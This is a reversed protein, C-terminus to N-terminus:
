EVVLNGQMGLTRHQGVSCYYEFSGAQDAVFEVAATDGTQVQKTAANFEDIVWDHFGDSSTFEIRVRDGKKVKLEPNEKGDMLFRYNEGTITFTTVEAEMTDVNEELDRSALPQDEPVAAEESQKCASLSLLVLTLLLFAKVTKM